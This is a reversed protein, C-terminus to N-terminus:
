KMKGLLLSVYIDNHLLHSLSTMGNISATNSQSVKNAVSDNLQVHANALISETAESDTSNLRMRHVQLPSVESHIAPLTM